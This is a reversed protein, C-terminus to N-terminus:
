IAFFWTRHSFDLDGLRTPRLNALGTGSRPDHTRIGGEASVTTKPEDDEGELIFNILQKRNM